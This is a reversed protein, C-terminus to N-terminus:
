RSAWRLEQRNIRAVLWRTFELLNRPAYFALVDWKLRRPRVAFSCAIRAGRNLLSVVRIRLVSLLYDVGNVARHLPPEQNATIRWSHRVAEDLGTKSRAHGCGRLKFVGRRYGLRRRAKTMVIVIMPLEFARHTALYCEDGM